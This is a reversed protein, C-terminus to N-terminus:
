RECGQLVWGLKEHLLLFQSGALLVTWVALVCFGPWAWLALRPCLGCWGPACCSPLHCFQPVACVGGCKAWRAGLTHGRWSGVVQVCWRDRLPHWAAPARSLSPPESDWVWCHGRRSGLCLDLADGLPRGDSRRPTSGARPPGVGVGYGEGLPHLRLALLRLLVPWLCSETQELDGSVVSGEGAPAHAGRLDSPRTRVTM